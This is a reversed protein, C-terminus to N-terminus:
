LEADASWGGGLIYARHLTEGTVVLSVQFSVTTPQSVTTGGSTVWATIFYSWLGATGSTGSGRYFTVTPATRMSVVLPVDSRILTTTGVVGNIRKADGDDAPVINYKYSKQYYRQCSALEEDFHRHEFDTAEEGIELQVETIRFNNAINDMVNVQNSTGVVDGTGWSGAAQTFNSGTMLAFRVAMGETTDTDWTGTTDGPITIEFKQWTNVVDVTYEFTYSRNRDGNLLAGSHIGTKPSQVWFSLTLDKAAAKGFLTGIINYGEIRQTLIFLDGAAVSADAVTVDVKLSLGNAENPVNTSSGIIATAGTSSPNILWRDAVYTVGSLGSIDSFTTGRQWVNMAGNIIINKRAPPFQGWDAIDNAKSM